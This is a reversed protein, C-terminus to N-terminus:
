LYNTSALDNPICTIMKGWVANGCQPTRATPTSAPTLDPQEMQNGANKRYIRAYFQEQSIDTHIESACDGVVDTGCPKRARPGWCKRPLNECSEKQANDMHMDIACGQLLPQRARPKHSKWTCTSQAPEHLATTAGTPRLM